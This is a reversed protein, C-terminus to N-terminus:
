MPPLDERCIPCQLRYKMWGELCKAHFIHRCPTMMYARRALLGGAGAIGGEPSSNPTQVYVELDQMCVACDFVRLGDDRAEPRTSSEAKIVPATASSGAPLNGGEEDEHLVPHYDYAPPMWDEKIFWRPGLIEQSALALGQVWLWVALVLLHALDLEAFLINWTYGYFYAFPSLRLLSQGIIFEWRLARRCNRYANRYIQPLWFSLYIFALTTFYARRVAAPWSTANLSLFLTFM